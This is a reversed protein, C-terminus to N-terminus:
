SRLLRWGEAGMLTTTSNGLFCSGQAAAAGLFACVPVPPLPPSHPSSPSASDRAPAACGPSRPTTMAPSHGGVKLFTMTTTSTTAVAYDFGAAPSLVPPTRPRPTLSTAQSAPHCRKRM